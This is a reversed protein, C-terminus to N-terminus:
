LDFAINTSFVVLLAEPIEAAVFPRRIAGLSTPLNISTGSHALLPIVKEESDSLVFKEAFESLDRSYLKNETLSFYVATPEFDARDTDINTIAILLYEGGKYHRYQRMTPLNVIRDPNRLTVKMVYHDNQEM